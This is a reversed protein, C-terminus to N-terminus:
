RSRGRPSIPTSPSGQVSACDLLNDDEDSLGQLRAGVLDRVAAPVQLESVDPADRAALGRAIELVFLPVGDSMEAIRRGVRQVLADSRLVESLMEAVEPPSLRGLQQRRFREVRAFHEVYRDMEAPRATLVLLTRQTALTRALAM